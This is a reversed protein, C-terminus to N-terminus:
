AQAKAGGAAGGSRRRVAEGVFGYLEALLSRDLIFVVAAYTLAGVPSLLVLRFSANLGQPIALRVTWIVGFMCIAACLPVVTSRMQQGWGIHAARRLMWGSIPGGICERIVWIGVAYGVTPVKTIYIALLVFILEASPAVLLDSPRGLATLVPSILLRPAQVAVQFSLVTVYPVIAIWQRGFLLEVVEPSSAGILVFCFYLALCCLSAAMGFARKFRAEDHKIRSMIPLVIQSIASAVLSWFMDIARFALNLLGAAQPGLSVGSLIVFLRKISFNLFLAAISFGGFSILQRFEIWGFRFRPREACMIWLVLSGFFVILIQQAVLGWFGAGMIVAAIGIAAGVLRGVLSRIALARFGLSRRQRPVITASVGTLPLCLATWILVARYAPDGAHAAFASAFICCGGFMALSLLVTFTFATDYHLETVDKRRVLADHFLMSVVVMLLEVIALVVSFVGFDSGSLFRSYVILSVFSILALGGSEVVSWLASRAASTRNVVVRHMGKDVPLPAGPETSAM